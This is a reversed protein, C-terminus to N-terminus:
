APPHDRWRRKSAESMKRLADTTYPERKRWNQNGLGKGMRGDRIREKVENSLAIGFRPNREGRHDHKGIQYQKALEREVPDQYRAKAAARMKARHEASKPATGGARGGKFRNWGIGWTPRLQEEIALCEERSGRFLITWSFGPPFAGRKKHRCLRTVFRDSIGVYGHRQLCICNADHLWYVVTENSM